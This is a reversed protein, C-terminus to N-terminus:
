SFRRCNCAPVMQAIQIRTLLTALEQLRRASPFAACQWTTPWKLIAAANGDGVAELLDFLYDLDVTGLM